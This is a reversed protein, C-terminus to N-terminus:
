YRRYPSRSRSYSRNYSPSRRRESGRYSGRRTPSAYSRPPPSYRRPPPSYRRPPPSRRRPPPRRSGRFRRRPSRERDRLKKMTMNSMDVSVQNEDIIGKNMFDCADEADEINEYFIFAHGMITNIKRARPLEVHVIKGYADFIEELHEIMINKTLGRVVVCKTERNPSLSRSRSYSRKSIPSM